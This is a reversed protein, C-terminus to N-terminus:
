RNNGAFPNALALPLLVPDVDATDLNFIIVITPSPLYDAARLATQKEIGLPARLSFPRLM